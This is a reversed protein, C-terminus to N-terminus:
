RAGERNATAELGVVHNWGAGQAINMRFRHLRAPSRFHCTKTASYPTVESGWTRSDGHYDQTGVQITFDATDTYVRVERLFSRSGPNLEIDATELTAAREEGTFFGLENDTTFAAFRPQGGTFLASDFPVNVDDITAYLNGLGDWTMGPTTLAVMESVNNDAYCWRDLQWHYGILFKTEDPREAQTWVIKEYPDAVSKIEGIKSNEIENLFWNDVREAGIMRGEVGLSFGDASYYFFQGPGIQAISRPAITGRDPNLIATTFSYGGGYAITMQRIMSRQLVIAGREAGLLGQVEEGDPFSQIDCGNLGLTWGSADGIESTQIAKPDSALHGLVVFEGAVAIYKARPPSGPLDAFATGSDIGMYQPDNASNVAILYDGFVAFSWVDGSPVAYPGSPGTRDTWSYDSTNLEYIGTETGAIVRYAGTTQRVYVAGLCPSGLAQSIPVLDAIPGWGDRVPQANTIVNSATPEFAARDPEFNGFRIM